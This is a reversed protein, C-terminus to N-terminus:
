MLSFNLKTKLKNVTLFTTCRIWQKLHECFESKITKWINQSKWKPNLNYQFLCVFVSFYCYLGIHARMNQSRAGMGTCPNYEFNVMLYINNTDIKNVFFDADQTLRVFVRQARMNEAEHVRIQTCIKGLTQCM